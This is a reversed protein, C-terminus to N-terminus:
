AEPLSSSSALLEDIPCSCSGLRIDVGAGRLRQMEPGGVFGCIIRDPKLELLMDCMSKAGSRDRPHYDTSHDSANHLLVGDCKNFFPCLLPVSGSNMVLVATRGAAATSGSAAEAVLDRRNSLM